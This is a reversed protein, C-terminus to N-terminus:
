LDALSCDKHKDQEPQQWTIWAGFFVSYASLAGEPTRGSEKLKRLYNQFM